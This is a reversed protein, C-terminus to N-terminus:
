SPLSGDPYVFLDVVHKTVYPSGQDALCCWKFDSAFNLGPPGLLLRFLEPGLWSFHIANPRPWWLTQRGIWRRAILSHLLTVLTNPNIVLCASQRM